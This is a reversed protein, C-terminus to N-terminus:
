LRGVYKASKFRDVGLTVNVFKVFITFLDFFSVLFM